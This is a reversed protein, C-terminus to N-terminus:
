EDGHATGHATEKHRRYEKRVHEITFCLTSSWGCECEAVYKDWGGFKNAERLTWVRCRPADKVELWVPTPAAKAKTAM